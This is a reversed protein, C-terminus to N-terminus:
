GGARRLDPQAPAARGGVASYGVSLNNLQAILANLDLQTSSTVNISVDGSSSVVVVGDVAAGPAGASAAANIVQQEVLTLNQAGVGPLTVVNWFVNQSACPENALLNTLCQPSIAYDYVQLDYVTGSFGAGGITWVQQSQQAAAAGVLAALALARFM